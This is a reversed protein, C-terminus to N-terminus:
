YYPHPTPPPEPPNSPTLFLTPPKKTSLTLNFVVTKEKKKEVFPYM